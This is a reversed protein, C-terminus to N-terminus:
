CLIVHGDQHSFLWATALAFNACPCLTWSDDRDLLKHHGVASEWGTKVTASLNRKFM